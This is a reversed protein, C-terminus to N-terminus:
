RTSDKKSLQYFTFPLIKTYSNMNGIFVHHVGCTKTDKNTMRYPCNIGMFNKKCCYQTDM